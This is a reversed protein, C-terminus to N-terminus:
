SGAPLAAIEEPSAVAVSEPAAVRYTVSEVLIPGDLAELALVRGTFGGAVETSLYRGDFEGLMEEDGESSVVMLAILDPQDAPRFLDGQPTRARLRLVVSASNDRPRRAVTTTAPGIRVTAEVHDPSATLGYWHSEDMRVTFRVSGASPRVVVDASWDFDTVRCALIAPAPDVPTIRLCDSQRSVLREPSGGPSVWRPHLAGDRFTETFSRDVDVTEFRDEVVVPWGDVWDVGALFTERGNTHFGPTKGRPRVGLYVMAWEGDALQVLDAHGTNQVPVALSRHSLIPNSPAPEWDGDLARARAVTATHGRETGGEALVLYWWGDIRYLHPAEPSALGSGSWLLRPEGLLEGTTPDIPM